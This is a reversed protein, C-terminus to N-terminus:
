GSGLFDNNKIKSHKIKIACLKEFDEILIMYEEV